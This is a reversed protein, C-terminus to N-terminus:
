LKPCPTRAVPLTSKVCWYVHYIDIIDAEFIQHGVRGGPIGPTFENIDISNGPRFKSVQARGLTPFLFNQLRTTPIPCVPSIGEWGPTPAPFWIHSACMVIHTGKHYRFTINLYDCTSYVLFEMFDDTFTAYHIYDRGKSLCVGSWVRTTAFLLLRIFYHDHAGCCATFTFPVHICLYPTHFHSDKELLWYLIHFKVICMKGLQFIQFYQFFFWFPSTMILRHSPGSPMKAIGLFTNHGLLNARKHTM